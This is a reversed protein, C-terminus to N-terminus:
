SQIICGLKAKLLEQHLTLTDFYLTTDFTKQCVSHHMCKLDCHISKKEIFHTYNFAPWKYLSTLQNRDAQVTKAFSFVVTNTTYCIYYNTFPLATLDKPGFGLWAELRQWQMSKCTVICTTRTYWGRTYFNNYCLPCFWGLYKIQISVPCKIDLAPIFWLM